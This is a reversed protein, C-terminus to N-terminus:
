QGAADKVILIFVGDQNFRLTLGKPLWTFPGIEADRQLTIDTFKRGGIDFDKRFHGKAFDALQTPNLRIEQPLRTADVKDPWLEVVAEKMVARIKPKHFLHYHLHMALVLGNVGVIAAKVETPLEAFGNWANKLAALPGAGETLGVLSAGLAGLGISHLAGGNGDETEWHALVDAVTARVAEHPDHLLTRIKELVASREAPDLYLVLEGLSKVANARVLWAHDRLLAEIKTVRPPRDKRDLHPILNKLGSTIEARVEPDEDKLGAEVRSLLIKQDLYSLYSFLNPLSVLAHVTSWIDASRLREWAKVVLPLRKEPSISPLAEQLKMWSQATDEHGWSQLIQQDLDLPTGKLAAEILKTLNEEASHQLLLFNGAKDFHFVSDDPIRIGHFDFERSTTVWIGLGGKTFHAVSGKPFHFGPIEIEGAAKFPFQTRKPQAPLDQVLKIKSVLDEPRESIEPMPKGAPALPDSHQNHTEPYLGSGIKRLYPEAAKGGLGGPGPFAEGARVLRDMILEPTLTRIWADGEELYPQLAELRRVPGASPPLVQFEPAFFVQLEEAERLSALLKRDWPLNFKRKGTLGLAFAKLETLSEQPNKYRFWAEALEAPDEAHLAQAAGSMRYIGIEHTYGQAAAREGLFRAFTKLDGWNGRHFNQFDMIEASRERCVSEIKELIETRRGEPLLPLLGQFLFLTRMMLEPRYRLGPLATKAITSIGEADLHRFSKQLIPMLLAPHSVYKECLLGWVALLIKTRDKPALRPLAAELFGVSEVALSLNQNPGYKGAELLYKEAQSAQRGLAVPDTSDIERRYRQLELLPTETVSGRARLKAIGWALLSGVAAAGLGVLTLDAVARPKAADTAGVLAAGLSFSMAPKAYPNFPSEPASEPPTLRAAAVEVRAKAELKQFYGDTLAQFGIGALHFGAMKLAHVLATKATLDGGQVLDAGISIATPTAIAGLQHIAQKGVTSQGFAQATQISAVDVALMESVSHWLRGGGHFIAMTLMNHGLNKLSLTEGSMKLMVAGEATVRTGWLAAEIGFEAASGESTAALLARIARSGRLGASVLSGVGVTAMAIAAEQLVQAPLANWEQDSITTSWDCPNLMNEYSEWAEKALPDQAFIWGSKKWGDIKQFALKRIEQEIGRNCTEAVMVQFQQETPWASPYTKAFQEPHRKKERELQAILQKELAPRKSDALSKIRRLQEPPIAALAQQLETQFLSELIEGALQPANEARLRKASALLFERGGPNQLKELGAQTEMGLLLAFIEDKKANPTSATKGLSKDQLYDRGEVLTSTDLIGKQLLIERGQPSPMLHYTKGDATKLYGGAKGFHLKCNAPYGQSPVELTGGEIRVESVGPQDLVLSFGQAVRPAKESDLYMAGAPTLSLAAELTDAQGAQLIEQLRGLLQATSAQEPHPLSANQLSLKAIAGLAYGRLCLRTEARFRITEPDKTDAAKAVFDRLLLQAEAHRGQILALHAQHFLKKGADTEGEALAQHAFVRLSFLEANKPDNQLATDLYTYVKRYVELAREAKGLSLYIEARLLNGKALLVSYNQSSKDLHLASKEDLFFEQNLKKLASEAEAFRNAQVLKAIQGLQGRLERELKLVDKGEVPKSAKFKHIISTLALGTPTAQILTLGARILKSSDM